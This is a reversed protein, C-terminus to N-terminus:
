SAQLKGVHYAGSGRFKCPHLSVKTDANAAQVRGEFPALQQQLDGIKQQLEATEAAASELRKEAASFAKAARAASEAQAAAETKQQLVEAELGEIDQLLLFFAKQSELVLM